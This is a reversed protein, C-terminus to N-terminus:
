STSAATRPRACATFRRSRRSRFRWSAKSRPPSIGPAGSREDGGSRSFRLGHPADALTVTADTLRVPNHTDTVDFLFISEPTADFGSLLYDSVGDAPDSFFHLSRGGTAILSREYEIEFGRSM